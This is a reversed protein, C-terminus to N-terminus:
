QLSGTLTIVGEGKVRRGEDDVGVFYWLSQSEKLSSRGSWNQSDFCPRDQGVIGGPCAYWDVFDAASYTKGNIGSFVWTGDRLSFVGFEVIRVARGTAQVTTKYPWVYRWRGEASEAAKAPNPSHVVLLGVPLSDLERLKPHSREHSNKSGTPSQVFSCFSVFVALQIM